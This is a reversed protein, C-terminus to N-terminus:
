SLRGQVVLEPLRVKQYWTICCRYGMVRDIGTILRFWDSYARALITEWRGKGIRILSHRYKVSRKRAFRIYGVPNSGLIKPDTKPLMCVKQWKTALVRFSCGMDDAELESDIHRWSPPFSRSEFLRSEFFWDDIHRKKVSLLEPFRDAVPRHDLDHM